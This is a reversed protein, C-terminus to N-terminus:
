CLKVHYLSTDHLKTCIQQSIIGQKKRGIDGKTNFFLNKWMYFRSPVNIVHLLACIRNTEGLKLSGNGILGLLAEHQLPFKTKNWMGLIQMANLM